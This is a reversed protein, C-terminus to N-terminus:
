FIAIYKKAGIEMRNNCILKGIQKKLKLITVLGSVVALAM